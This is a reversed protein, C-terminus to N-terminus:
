REPAVLSTKSSFLIFGVTIRLRFFITGFTGSSICASSPATSLSTAADGSSATEPPSSSIGSTPSFNSLSGSCLSSSLTSAPSSTVPSAFSSIPSSTSSSSFPSVKGLTESSNTFSCSRSDFSSPATSGSSLFTSGLISFFFFSFGLLTGAFIIFSPSAGSGSGFTCSGALTVGASIATGRSSFASFTFPGLLRLFSSTSSRM